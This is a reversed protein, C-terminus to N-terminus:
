DRPSDLAALAIPDLSQAGGLIKARIQIDCLKELLEMRTLADEISMGVTVAGHQALLLAQSSQLGEVAGLGLAESGPDQYSILSVGGLLAASEALISAIPTQQAVAFATAAPPHTHIIADVDPQARYIALHLPLESSPQKRGLIPEGTANVIILDGPTLRDKRVSAATIM